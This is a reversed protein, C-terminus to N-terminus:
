FLQVMAPYRAPQALM